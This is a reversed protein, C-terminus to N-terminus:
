TSTCHVHIGALNDSFFNHLQGIQGIDARRHGGVQLKKSNIMWVLQPSFIWIPQILLEAPVGPGPVVRAYKIDEDRYDAEHFASWWLFPPMEGLLPFCM